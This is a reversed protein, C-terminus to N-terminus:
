IHILSLVPAIVVADQSADLKRGGIGAAADAQFSAGALDISHGVLPWLRGRYAVSPGGATLRISRRISEVKRGAKTVIIEREM